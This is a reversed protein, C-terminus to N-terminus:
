ALSIGGTTKMYGNIANLSARGFETDGLKIVIEKNGSNTMIKSALKSALEDMWGTNRDLPLIAEKGAEGVNALVSGTAIGGKALRPISVTNFNFGFYSGGFGPVWDPIRWSLRNIARIIGNVANEVISIIGNFAARAGERIVGFKNSWYNTTLKSAVNTKFWSTLTSWVGTIAEKAAEVKTKAGQRITDFKDQWYKATFKQSVNSKFWASVDSWLGKTKALIDKAWQTITGISNDYLKKFWGIMDQICDPLVIDDWLKICWDLVGEVFAKMVGITSDYMGEFVDVIGSGIQKVADWAGQLDGKCLKVVATVVGTVIEVIGATVQMMGEIAKVVAKIIGLITGGVISVVIGGLGEIATVLADLWDISQVWEVFAASVKKVWDWIKKLEDKLWDPICEWLAEGCDAIADTLKDWSKKIDDLLPKINEDVWEQTVKKVKDWNEYLFYAASGVAVVAAAIAALVPASLGSIFAGVASVVPALATKIAGFATVLPTWNVLKIATAIAGIATGVGTLAVVFSEINTIGGNDWVAKFSAVATIGLGIALGAPGWQAYLIGTGIAATVAAMVYNKFGEGDIYNDLFENVMTYQLTIVIGTVALKRITGMMTLFKDGLGIAKGLGELLKAVSLAGLAASIIQIQTKFKTVFDEIKQKLAEAQKSSELFISNGSGIGSSAGGLSNGGSSSGSSANPDSVINLEDFGMTTRKLKEITQIANNTAASASDMGSTISDTMPTLDLNFVSQLFTNVVVIAKTIWEVVVIVAPLVLQALTNRFGQWAARLNVLRGQLISSNTILEKSMAGGLERYTDILQQTEQNTLNLVTTLKSTDESFLKYAIATRETVNEINQLSKITKTWLEEQNMSLVDNVSIGLKNYAEIVDASGNVVDTQSETLTKMMEKLESAEVGTRELVYSWEQYSQAAFGAQQSATYMETALKSIKLANVALVLAAVAATLAGVAIVIKGLHKLLAKAADGIRMLSLKLAHCADQMRNKVKLLDGDTRELYSRLAQWDGKTYGAFFEKDSTLEKWLKKFDRMEVQYDKFAVLSEKLTTGFGDFRMKLNLVYTELKKTMGTIPLLWQMVNIGILGSMSGSLEEIAASAMGTSEAMDDTNLGLKSDGINGISSKVRQGLKTVDSLSDRAEKGIDDLANKMKKTEKTVGNLSREAKKSESSIHPISQKVKDTIGNLQAKVKQAGAKIDSFDLRLKINLSEGDM